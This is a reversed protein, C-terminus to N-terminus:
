YELGTMDPVQVDAILCATRQRRHSKLLEEASPFGEAAFWLARKLSM